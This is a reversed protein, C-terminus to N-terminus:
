GVVDSGPGNEVSNWGPAFRSPWLCYGDHHKAVLIIYKEVAREFIAAWEEPDFLEAKFLPAFDRYTFNNGFNKKMFEVRLPAGTQLGRLYWEAYSEPSGYAPVSYVGWHIFIGLKADTFWKPYERQRLTQWSTTDQAPCLTHWILLVFPIFPNHAKIRM